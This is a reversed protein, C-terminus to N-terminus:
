TFESLMRGVAIWGLFAGTLGKAIAHWSTKQLYPRLPYVASSLVLGWAAAGLVITIILLTISSATIGQHDILGSVGLWFAISWPSTITLIAGLLFGNRNSELRPVQVTAEGRRWRIFDQLSQRLYHVALLLLLSLSVLTLIGSNLLVSALAATGAFIVIAWVADGTVGGLCLSFGAWFGHLSGRRVIEMNVPGPPWAVSWGLLFGILAVSFPSASGLSALSEM